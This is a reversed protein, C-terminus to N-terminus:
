KKELSAVSQLAERSIIYISQEPYISDSRTAIDKITVLATRYINAVKKQAQIQLRYEELQAKSPMVYTDLETELEAIKAQQEAYDRDDNQQGARLDSVEKELEAIRKHALVLDNRRGCNVCASIGLHEHTYKVEDAQVADPQPEQSM